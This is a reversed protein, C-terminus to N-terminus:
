QLHLVAASPEASATISLRPSSIPVPASGFGCESQQRSESPALSLESGVLVFASSTFPREEDAVGAFCGVTEVTGLSEAEAVYLEM